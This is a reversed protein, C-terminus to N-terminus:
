SRASTDPDGGKMVKSWTREMSVELTRFKKAAEAPSLNEYRLGLAIGRLEAAKSFYWAARGRFDIVRQLATFLGPLGALIALVLGPIQHETAAVVAIAAAFSLIIAGFSCILDTLHNNRGSSFDIDAQAEIEDLLEDTNM